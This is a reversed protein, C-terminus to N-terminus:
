QRAHSEYITDTGPIRNCGLYGYPCSVDMIKIASRPVTMTITVLDNKSAKKKTAM